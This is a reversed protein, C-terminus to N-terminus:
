HKWTDSGKSYKIYFKDSDYLKYFKTNVISKQGCYEDRKIEFFEPEAYNTIASVYFENEILKTMGGIIYSIRNSFVIPSQDINYSKTQIEKKKPYKLLDCNRVLSNNISYESIRKTTKAPIYIISDEKKSVSYGVLSGINTSSASTIQNKQVNNNNNLFAVAVSGASINSTSASKSESTTFTRNKYYDYAFGNLIFNSENLKVGIKENTKNYFNFGINGGNSWLNYTIKCNDDEFFLNDSKKISEQSSKVNYVQYFSTTACSSFLLAISSLFFMKKIKM